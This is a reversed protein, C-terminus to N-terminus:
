VACQGNNCRGTLRLRNKAFVQYGWDMFHSIGPLRTPAVMWRFGVAAYLQRFVEVGVIWTGDSLRGRIEAMFEEETWPYDSVKFGAGAIDTFRIRHKRDMWRIMAIERVCLPCDGDYFVEVKWQHNSNKGNEPSSSMRSDHHPSPPVTFQLDWVLTGHCSFERTGATAFSM